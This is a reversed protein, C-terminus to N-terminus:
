RTQAQSRHLGLELDIFAGILSRYCREVVDPSAGSKAALDRVRAIIQEVRAPARVGQEDGKLAGAAVVCQQREAILHVIRRDLSDIQERIENLSPKVTRQDAM